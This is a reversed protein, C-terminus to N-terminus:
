GEEALPSGIGADALASYEPPEGRLPAIVNEATMVAMNRRTPVSASGIHPSVVLKEPEYALLDHDPPLPEPDTTDLGARRIWDNELATLLADSDVVKGRATNVLVADDPMARLEAEGVLHHTEETLPVHLSVFDSTAFLEAEDVYTAEVGYEALEAETKRNRSTHSYQVDMDFGAARKAVETGIGGLGVIGLTSEHINQGTLVQPGWAQWEGDRVRDHAEVIRRACCTLLSWALDATTESLVGPTHGVAVGYEAAAALDIHDYGVSMTSVARLNPSARIVAEDVDDTVMCFLGAADHEDLTERLTERDPPPDGPWVVAECGASELRDIGAEPIERTVFVTPGDDM